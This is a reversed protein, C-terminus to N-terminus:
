IKSQMALAVQTTIGPYSYFCTTVRNSFGYVGNVSRFQVGVINNLNDLTQPHLAIKPSANEFQVKNTGTIKGGSYQIHENNPTFKLERIDPCYQEAEAISNFFTPEASATFSCVMLLSFLFKQM